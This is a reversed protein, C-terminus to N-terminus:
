LARQRLTEGESSRSGTVDSNRLILPTLEKMETEMKSDNDESSNPSECSNKPATPSGAPDGANTKVQDQKGAAGTPKKGDVSDMKVPCLTQLLGMSDFDEGSCEGRRKLLELVKIYKYSKLESLNEELFLLYLSLDDWQNPTPLVGVTPLSQYTELFRAYGHCFLPRLGAYIVAPILGVFLVLNVLSLLYFVGVAVLKCQVKDPVGPDSALLGVRLSCGFEDTQSALRLYYGLYVCACLLTVLTLGRCLLYYFLMSRSCRKTMLFKEVLPYNFCDETIDSDSTRAPSTAMRKALTVARNYSRDLEEMLFSLDSQLLPAASFRWFLAPTYMLVAVLLLIYPFFKHLWLPLTHTHVSAWCFSDVYAAQRWSFNSPAFCSIQTGVSVEQAFALSILLLPLGVAVCTVMKDVALETRVNHYRSQNPDKLLFDSFVYETAVHAIAM